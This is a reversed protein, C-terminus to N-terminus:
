FVSYVANVIKKSIENASQQHVADRAADLISLFEDGREPSLVQMRIDTSLLAIAVSEYPVHGPRALPVVNNIKIYDNLEELLDGTTGEQALANFLEKM